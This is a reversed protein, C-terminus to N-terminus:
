SSNAQDLLSPHPEHEIVVEGVFPGKESLLCLFFDSGFSDMLPLGNPAASYVFLTFLFLFHLYIAFGPFSAFTVM